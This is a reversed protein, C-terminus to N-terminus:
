HQDSPGLVHDRGSVFLRLPSKIEQAPGGGHCGSHKQAYLNTSWEARMGAALYAARTVAASGYSKNPNGPMSSHKQPWM